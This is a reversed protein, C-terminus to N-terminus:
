TGHSREGAEEFGRGINEEERMEGEEEDGELVLALWKALGTGGHICTEQVYSDPESDIWMGLPGVLRTDAVRSCTRAIIRPFLVIVDNSPTSIGEYWGDLGELDLTPYAVFERENTQAVNWMSISSVALDLLNNRLNPYLSLKVLLSLVAIVKDAFM